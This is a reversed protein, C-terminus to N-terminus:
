GGSQGLRELASSYYTPCPGLQKGRITEYTVIYHMEQSPLRTHGLSGMIRLQRVEQGGGNAERLSAEPIKLGVIRDVDTAIDEATMRSEKAMAEVVDENSNKLTLNIPCSEIELKLRLDRGNLAM